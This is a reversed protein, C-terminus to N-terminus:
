QQVLQHLDDKHLGGSLLGEHLDVNSQADGEELLKVILLVYLHVEALQQQGPTLLLEVLHELNLLLIAAGAAATEVRSHLLSLGGGLAILFEVLLHKVDEVLSLYLITELLLHEAIHVQDNLKVLVVLNLGVNQSHADVVHEFLDVTLVHLNKALHQIFQCVKLALGVFFRSLLLALPAVLPRLALPALDVQLPDIHSQHTEELFFVVHIQVGSNSESDHVQHVGVITLPLSFDHPAFLVSNSLLLSLRGLFLLRLLDLAPATLRGLHLLLASSKHLDLLVLLLLSAVHRFSLRLAGSTPFRCRSALVRDVIQQTVQFGLLGITFSTIVAM